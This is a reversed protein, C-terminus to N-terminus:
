SEGAQKGYNIGYANYIDFYEMAGLGIEELEPAYELIFKKIMNGRKVFDTEENAKTLLQVDEFPLSTIPPLTYVKGGDSDLAFTFDKKRSLVFDAM